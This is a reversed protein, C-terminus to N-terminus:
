SLACDMEAFFPPEAGPFGLDPPGAQEVWESGVLAHVDTTTDWGVPDGEETYGAISAFRQTITDEVPDCSFASINAVTGGELWGAVAGGDAYTTRVLECGALTYVGVMQTAAGGGTRVFLEHGGIGNMQLGGLPAAEFVGDSDVILDDFSSVPTVVRLHWKGESPSFWTFADEDIGDGDMDITVLSGTIADGPMPDAEPCLADMPAPPWDIGGVCVDIVLRSPDTVEMVRFGKPADAGIAWMMYGEFGGGSLVERINGTDATLSTPGAYPTETEFDYLNGSARLTLYWDGDPVVPEGSGDAAPPIESWALVYSDTPAGADGDLELVFRDYSGQGALRADVLTTDNSSYNPFGGAVIPDGPWACDLEEGEDAPEPTPTPEPAEPTPTPEPDDGAPEDAEDGAPEEADGATEDDAAEEAPAEETPEPTTDEAPAEVAVELGGGCAALLMTLALVIATIAATIPRNSTRASM